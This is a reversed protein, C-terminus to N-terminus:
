NEIESVHVSRKDVYIHVAEGKHGCRELVANELERIDNEPM